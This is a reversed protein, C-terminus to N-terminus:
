LEEALRPEVKRFVAMGAALGVVAWLLMIGWSAATPMRGDYLLNRYSEIYEFMPNFKLITILDIGFPAPLDDRETLTTVPWVVPTAWFWLQLVISVLYEVDRFFANLSTAVLGVGTSFAMQLVAVVIVVPAYQVLSNGTVILAVELVALEIMFTIFFALSSSAPLMSRPFFVKRILNVNGAIAQVDGNICNSHFTWPLLACVLFFAYVHIGSPDGPPPVQQFLLTFVFSYIGLFVIPNLLSWGWGLFSRKYKGRLERLTLNWLLEPPYSELSPRRM